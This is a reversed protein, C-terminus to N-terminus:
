AAGDTPNFHAKPLKQLVTAPYKNSQATEISNRIINAKAEGSAIIIASGDKNYTITDLGITIVLRNRAIEIGGVHNHYETEM